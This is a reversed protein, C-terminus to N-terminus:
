MWGRGIVIPKCELPPEALQDGPAQLLIRKIYVYPPNGQHRADRNPREEIRGMVTWGDVTVPDFEPLGAGISALPSDGHGYIKGGEIMIYTNANLWETMKRSLGAAADVLADNEPEGPVGRMIVRHTKYREGPCIIGLINRFHDIHTNLIVGTAVSPHHRQPPADFISKPRPLSRM